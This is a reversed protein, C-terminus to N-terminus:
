GGREQAARRGSRRERVNSVAMMAARQVGDGERMAPYILSADESESFPGSGPGFISITMSLLLPNSTLSESSEEDLPLWEALEECLGVVQPLQRM